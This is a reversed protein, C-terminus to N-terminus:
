GIPEIAKKLLEEFLPNEGHVFSADSAKHLQERSVKSWDSATKAQLPPAIDEFVAVVDADSGVNVVRTAGIM